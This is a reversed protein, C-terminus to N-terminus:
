QSLRAMTVCLQPPRQENCDIQFGYCRQGGNITEWIWQWSIAISAQWRKWCSFIEGPCPQYNVVMMSSPSNRWRRNKGMKLIEFKQTERTRFRLLDLFLRTKKDKNSPKNGLVKCVGPSRNSDFSTFLERSMSFSKSSKERWERAVHLQSM